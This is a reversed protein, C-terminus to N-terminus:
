RDPMPQAGHFHAILWRGEQRVFICTLRYPSRREGGNGRLIVDGDAFLWAVHGLSSIDRSRWAWHITFPLAFYTKFHDAIAERGTALDSAESGAVRGDVTFLEAVTMDRAAIDCEFRELAALIESPEIM